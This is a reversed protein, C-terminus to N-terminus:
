GMGRIVWIVQYGMPNRWERTPLPLTVWSGTTVWLGYSKPAWFGYYIGLISGCKTINPFILTIQSAWKPGVDGSLWSSLMPLSM